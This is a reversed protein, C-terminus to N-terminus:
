KLFKGRKAAYVLDVTNHVGFKKRLNERHKNVTPELIDLAKAIEKSTQGRAVLPLIAQERRTLRIKAGYAPTTDASGALTCLLICERLIGQKHTDTLAEMAQRLYEAVDDIRLTKGIVLIERKKGWGEPLSSATLRVPLWAGTTTRLRHLPLVFDGTEPIDAPFTVAPHGSLAGLSSGLLDNRNCELRACAAENVEAIRGEPNLIFVMEPCANIVHDYYDRSLTKVRLEEGIMCIGSSVIDWADPFAPATDMSLRDFDGRALYIFQDVIKDMKNGM